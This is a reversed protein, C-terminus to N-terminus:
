KKLNYTNNNVIINNYHIFKYANLLIKKWIMYYLYVNYNNNIM